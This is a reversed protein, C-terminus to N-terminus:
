AASWDADVPGDPAGLHAVGNLVEIGGPMVVPDPSNPLDPWPVYVRWDGDGDREAALSFEVGGSYTPVRLTVTM